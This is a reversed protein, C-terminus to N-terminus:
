YTAEMILRTDVVFHLATKDDFGIDVCPFDADAWMEVFEVTKGVAEGFRLCHKPRRRRRAPAAKAAAPQPNRRRQTKATKM